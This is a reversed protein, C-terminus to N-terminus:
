EMMQGFDAFPVAEQDMDTEKAFWGFGLMM